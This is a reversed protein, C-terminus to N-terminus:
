EVLDYCICVLVLGDDIGRVQFEGPPSGSEAVGWHGGGYDVTGHVVASDEAEFSGGVADCM